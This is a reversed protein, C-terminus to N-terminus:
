TTHSFCSRFLAAGAIRTVWTDPTRTTDCIKLRDLLLLYDNINEISLLQRFLSLFILIITIFYLITYRNKEACLIYLQRLLLHTKTREVVLLEKILCPFIETLAHLLLHSINSSLLRYNINNKYRSMKVLFRLVFPYNNNRLYKQIM